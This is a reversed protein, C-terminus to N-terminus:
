LNGTQCISSWGHFKKQSIQAFMESRDVIIFGKASCKGLSNRDLTGSIWSIPWKNNEVRLLTLEQMNYKEFAGGGGLDQQVLANLWEINSPNFSQHAFLRFTSFVRFLPM